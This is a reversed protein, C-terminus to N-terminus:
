RIEEEVSVEYIEAPKMQGCEFVSQFAMRHGVLIVCDYYSYKQLVRKVRKQLMEKSEWIKKEHEPYIGQCEQYDHYLNMMEDMNKYQYTLDPQWERLDMEVEISLGTQKSIIAATQLARTYPSSVIVQANKLRADKSAHIVDSLCEKKLPALDHGHGIFGHVDGYSYDPQGHRVCYFLTM